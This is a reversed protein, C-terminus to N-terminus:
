CYRLTRRPSRSILFIITLFTAAGLADAFVQDWQFFGRNLYQNFEWNLTSFFYIESAIISWSFTHSFRCYRVLWRRTHIYFANKFISKQHQHKKSSRKLIILTIFGAPATASILFHEFLSHYDKGILEFIMNIEPSWRLRSALSLLIGGVFVTASFCLTSLNPRIIM